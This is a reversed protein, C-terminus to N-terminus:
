RPSYLQKNNFINVLFKKNSSVKKKMLVTNSYGRFKKSQFESKSYNLNVTNLTRVYGNGATNWIMRQATTFEGRDDTIDWFQNFRYKNEVKSYLIDISSPNVIPYNIIAFPNNKPQNNLKLLGSVQEMNYIVAEDFNEDLFMFRDHCNKDYKYVELQYEISRITNVTQVTNSIYEIEFPYDVGYYNAYSDCVENHLWMGRDQISLFTNKNPMLFNPHWDHWSVWAKTKPDYSITWSCDEFYLPDGLKVPLVGNVIFGNQPTYTMDFILDQRKRYDKKTFYLLADQNNYISQCDVGVVANDSIDFNPFDITIQYPLYMSFWWRLDQMTLEMMGESISFIKGQNQSIWFVGAPTNIISRLNQCSGYEYPKESNSLSQLPQNFLSGDGITIKTGLDTELTEVGRIMIPSESQFFIIAGSQGLDKITTIETRFDKYNNALYVRWSDVILEYQQQLSYILRRPHKVYCTAAVNPDYYNPQINAWSASNIFNKGASLSYDYKYYDQYRIHPVRFLDTKSNYKTHDYFRKENGDEWDRFFTNVESEVYFDRVGSNFLYFYANKIIFFGKNAISPGSGLNLGGFSYNTTDSDLARMTTPFTPSLSSFSTINSVFGVVIEGLDIDISNVWYTPYATMPFLLYDYEYGNPQQYLWQTFFYMTNREAYRTIYTDGGFLVDSTFNQNTLATKFNANQICSTPLQRVQGIQGYQNALNIKLGAYFSGIKKKHVTETPREWDNKTIAVDGLKFKSDDANVGSEITPLNANSNVIVTEGRYLNNIKVNIFSQLTSGLYAADNISFPTNQTDTEYNSYFGTSQYQLALNRFYTGNKIANVITSYGEEWFSVFMPLSGLIKVATSMNGSIGLERKISTNTGSILRYTDLGADLTNPGIFSGALAALSGSNGLLSEASLVGTLVPSGVVQASNILVYSPLNAFVGGGVGVYEELFNPNTFTETSTTGTQKQIALGFGAIAGAYFLLNTVLKYKPHEEPFVFNGESIGTAFLYYNINDPSLYPKKFQTDPSHFTVIDRRGLVIGNSNQLTGSLWGTSTPSYSLFPDPFGTRIDNYPYNPIYSPVGGIKPIDNSQLLNNVLGKAIITKNGERDGRLIRYGVINTIVNGALDLPPKINDFKVGLVRIAEGNVTATYNVYHLLRYADAQSPFKHHRIPQGCLAGWVSPNNPYLETSTWPIMTGEAIEFGENDVPIIMPTFTFGTSNNPIHYSSSLDGDDYIFQIFFAYVEDRLYSLNEGSNKYYEAPYEVSVWKSQINNAIPQYNFDFKSKPQVRIM